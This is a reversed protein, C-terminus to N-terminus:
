EMKNEYVYLRETRILTHSRAIQIKALAFKYM